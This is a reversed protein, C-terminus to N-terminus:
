ALRDKIQKLLDSAISGSGGVLQLFREDPILQKAHCAVYAIILARMDEVKGQRESTNEYIYQVLNVISDINKAEPKVDRLTQHLKDLSAERLQVMDYTDALTYLKAHCLFVDPDVNPQSLAKKQSVSLGSTLATNRLGFFQQWAEQDSTPMTSTAAVPPPSDWIINSKKEKKKGKKGSTWADWPEDVIVENSDEAMTFPDGFQREGDSKGMDLCAAVSLDRVPMDAGKDQAQCTSSHLVASYDGTYVFEMFRTFTDPDVEEMRACQEESENMSGHMLADLPKSHRSISFPHIYFEKQETGVLFKFPKSQSISDMM